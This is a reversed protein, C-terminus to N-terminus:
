STHSPSFVFFRVGFYVKKVAVSITLPPLLEGGSMQVDRLQVGHDHNAPLGALFPCRNMKKRRKQTKSENTPTRQKTKNEPPSFV